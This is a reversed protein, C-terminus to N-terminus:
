FSPRVIAPSVSVKADDDFVNKHVKWVVNSSGDRHTLFIPDFGSFDHDPLAVRPNVNDQLHGFLLHVTNRCHVVRYCLIKTKHYCWTLLSVYFPRFLEEDQCNGNEPIVFHPINDNDWFVLFKRTRRNTYSFLRCLVDADFGIEVLERHDFNLSYHTRFTVNM